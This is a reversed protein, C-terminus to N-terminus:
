PWTWGVCGFPTGSCYLEELPGNCTHTHPPSIAKYVSHMYKHKCSHTHTSNKSTPHEEKVTSTHPSSACENSNICHHLSQFLFIIKVDVVKHSLHPGFPSEHDLVQYTHVYSYVKTVEQNNRLYSVHLRHVHSTCLWQLPSKREETRIWKHNLRHVIYIRNTEKRLPGCHVENDTMATCVAM